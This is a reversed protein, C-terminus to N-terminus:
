GFLQSCLSNWEGELRKRHSPAAIAILAAARQDLSLHRIDAVGYETVVILPDSKLISIPTGRALTTVIRSVMGNRSTSPLAIIPCGNPHNAAARMFDTLGGSSSVLQGNAAESNVQGLLDVEIASNIAVFRHHGQGVGPGHTMEVSKFHVRSNGHLWEFLTPGGVAIGTTIVGEGPALAGMRDLDAVAETIMGSCIRLNRKDKLAQLVASQLTGLGLQLSDGDDILNAVNAGVQLYTESLTPSDTTVLPGDARILADFGAAPLMTDGSTVPMAQNVLAVKMAACSL